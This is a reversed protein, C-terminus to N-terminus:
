NIEHCVGCPEYGQKEADEKSDFQIINDQAISEAYGCTPKHYKDSETSGIIDEPEAFEKVIEECDRIDVYKKKDYQTLILYTMLGLNMVVLGLVLSCMGRDQKKKTQFM